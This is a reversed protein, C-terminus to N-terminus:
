TKEGVYIEWTGEEWKGGVIKKPTTYDVMKYTLHQQPKFVTSLEKLINLSYRKESRGSLFYNGMYSIIIAGGDNIYSKIHKLLEVRGEEPKIHHYPGSLIVVDVSNEPRWTKVDGVMFTWSPFLERAQNIANVSSDVGIATKNTTKNILDVLGGVGCGMDIVTKYRSLITSLLMKFQQQYLNYRPHTTDRNGWPDKTSKYMSDQELVYRNSM